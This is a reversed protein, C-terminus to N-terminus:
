TASLDRIVLHRLLLSQDSELILNHRHDGGYFLSTMAQGNILIEVSSKDVLISGQIVPEISMRRLREDEGMKSHIIHKAGSRDLIAQLTSGDLVLDLHHREDNLLKFALRDKPGLQLEFEILAVDQCAITTQEHGNLWVDSAEYVRQGKGKLSPPFSQAILGHKLSLIRPLTMSGAWHHNLIDTVQDREWSNMWAIMVPDHPGSTTQPAYFDFGHDLIQEKKRSFTYTADDFRGIWAFVSFSNQVDQTLVAKQTSFILVDQGDITLLDPCEIVDGYSRPFLIRNKYDFQQGDKSAYILIQGLYDQTRSGTLMLTQGNRKLIKPDRFDAFLSDDPMDKASLLPNYPSKAFHIGDQSTALCQSQQVQGDVDVHGTYYLHTKGEEILATGSFIGSQDYLEGPALAIPLHTWEVLDKSTAHGWHMPGWKSSYPHYQYYLHYANGDFSFGNPDNIWGVQASFHLEPKYIPNVSDKNDQIYAEIHEISLGM